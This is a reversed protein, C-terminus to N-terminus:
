GEPSAMQTDSLFEPVDEAPLSLIRAMNRWKTKRWFWFGSEVPVYAYALDISQKNVSLVWYPPEDNGPVQDIVATNVKLLVAVKEKCPACFTRVAGANKVTALAREADKKSVYEQQDAWAPCALLLTVAAFLASRIM